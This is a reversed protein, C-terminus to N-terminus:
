SGFEGGQVLMRLTQIWMSLHHLTPGTEPIGTTAEHAMRDLLLPMRMAYWTGALILIATLALLARRYASLARISLAATLVLATSVLALPGWASADVPRGLQAWGSRSVM